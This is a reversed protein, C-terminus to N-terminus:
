NVESQIKFDGILKFKFYDDERIKVRHSGSSGSSTMFNGGLRIKRTKHLMKAQEDTFDIVLEGDAPTNAFRTQTDIGPAEITLPHSDDSAPVTTIVEGNEDLFLLELDLEFPLMNEYEIRIASEKLVSSEDEGPLDSLDAEVTDQLVESGVSNALQIPIEFGISSNFEIPTVVFGEENQPNVISKGIFRIETPFNSLFEDVNTAEQDFNIAGHYISGMQEATEVPLSLVNSIDISQGNVQLGQARQPNDVVYEGGQKPTLYVRKGDENIGLIVGYIRAPIGLNVDYLLDLATDFFRTEGLRDSLEELDEFEQVEAEQDNFLDLVDKGNAPDDDNLLVEKESILGKAENIELERVQLNAGVEDSSSVIVAQNGTDETKGRLEYEIQNNLAEILFGSLDIKIPERDNVENAEIRRYQYSGEPGDSSGEFSITLTDGDPTFIDKIKITLEPINTSLQNVLSDIVLKGKDLTIYHDNQTFQFEQSNLSISNDTEMTESELALKAEEVELDTTNSQILVKDTSSIQLGTGGTTGLELDYNISRTLKEGSLDFRVAGTEGNEISTANPQGEVQLSKKSDLVEGDSNRLTLAPTSTGDNNTLPLNTNNTVELDLQNLDGNQDNSTLTAHSFQDDGILIDPTSPSLNQQPIDSTAQSVVLNDDSVQVNMSPQDPGQFAQQNWELYVETEMEVELQEGSQFSIQDTYTENHGITSSNTIESGVKVENGDTNAYLQIQLNSIDFGLNNEFVVEINGSEITASVFNDMDLPIRVTNEGGPVMDGESPPDQGVVEQFSASGSGNFDPSFTGVEAETDEGAEGTITGIQSNIKQVDSDITPIADSLSGLNIDQEQSLSVLGSDVGGTRNVSFLSDFESSTTDIIADSGGLFIMTEEALLPTRVSQDVKFDPSNPRECSLLFIFLIYFVVYYPRTSFSIFM